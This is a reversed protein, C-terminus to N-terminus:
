LTTCVSDRCELLRKQLVQLFREEFQFLFFHGGDFWDLTFLESSEQRWADLNEANISDGTGGFCHIPIPLSVSQTYQFSKCVRYDVRLHNLTMSLLEPDNFVEEPTGGHENLDAILAADTYPEIYRESNQQAPAACGSIFLAAPLETQQMQRLKHAIGFALLGGMSHGFLAYKKPVHRVIEGSLLAILALYDEGADENMRIGRGPLEIPVINIWPPMMKKWRMYITASAGAYPLCYLTLQVSM